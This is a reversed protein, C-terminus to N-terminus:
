EDKFQKKKTIRRFIPEIFELFFKNKTYFLIIVYWIISAIITIIAVLYANTMISQTIFGIVVIGVGGICPGLITEKINPLRIQKDIFRGMIVIGLVESAVTTAAAANIGYKPVLLLNLIINISAGIISSVLCIKERGAPIMTMNGLWGGILSCLLAIGLIRLSPAAEVYAEGAILHIIQPAIIEIGCFTPIGLIAIFNLSYSLLGNIKEYDRKTFASSLQPILVLAISAIMMNVLTYIKVSTSYLGTQYDGKFLGIITMDSNTYITQTVVLSFLLLIPPLHHKLDVKATIKTRCYKRRYVINIINAGSSAIVSIVAYKIYDDPKHVMAFMLILSLLQMSLTRITIFKFDEMATNLWDAGLTAFIISTSQIIILLRYEDLRRAFVLTVFLCTYAILTSLINISIIQSVTASLVDRNERVKSCERVAYTSIGLSAILSFYSIISSCFNLKGVNETLLVRSIYPFTILPFVISSATKITNLVANQNIRRTESQDSM